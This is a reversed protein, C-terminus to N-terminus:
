QCACGVTLDDVSRARADECNKITSREDIWRQDLVLGTPVKYKGAKARKKLSELDEANKIPTCGEIWKCQRNTKPACSSKNNAEEKLCVGRQIVDGINVGGVAPVPVCDAFASAQSLALLVVACFRKM